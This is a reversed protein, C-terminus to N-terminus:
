TPPQTGTCAQWGAAIMGYASPVAPCYDRVARGRFTGYYREFVQDDRLTALMERFAAVEAASPTYVDGVRPRSRLVSVLIAEVSDIGVRIEHLVADDVAHRVGADRLMRHAAAAWTAVRRTEPPAGAAERAYAEVTREADFLEPVLAVVEFLRKLFGPAFKSLQVEDPTVRAVRRYEDFGVEDRLWVLLAAELEATDEPPGAADRECMEGATDRM